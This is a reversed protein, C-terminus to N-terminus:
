LLIYSIRFICLTVVLDKLLLLSALAYSELEYSNSHTHRLAASFKVTEVVTLDDYMDASHKNELFSLLPSFQKKVLTGNLYINCNDENDDGLTDGYIGLQRLSFTSDVKSGLIAFLEGSECYGKVNKKAGVREWRLTYREERSFTRLM